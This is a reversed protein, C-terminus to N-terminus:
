SIKVGQVLNTHFFFFPKMQFLQEQTMEINHNNNNLKNM